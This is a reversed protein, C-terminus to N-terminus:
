LQPPERFRWAVERFDDFPQVVNERRNKRLEAFGDLVPWFVSALRSEQKGAFIERKM